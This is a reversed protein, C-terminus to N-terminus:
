GLDGFSGGPSRGVADCGLVNDGQAREEKFGAGMARGPRGGGGGLGPQRQVSASEILSLSGAAGCRGSEAAMGERGAAARRLSAPGGVWPANEGKARERDNPVESRNRLSRLEKM